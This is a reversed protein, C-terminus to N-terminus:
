DIIGLEKLKADIEEKPWYGVHRYVEEGSANYIVQTPISRVQYKVGLSPDQWVDAFEIKLKGAYDRRLEELVPQMMKCPICEHAGVEVFVPLSQSNEAAASQDGTGQEREQATSPSQQDPPQAAGSPSVAEAAPASSQPAAGPQPNKIIIVLAIAAIVGLVLYTKSRASM